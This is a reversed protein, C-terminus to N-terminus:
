HAFVDQAGTSVFTAPTPPATVAVCINNQKACQMRDTGALSLDPVQLLGEGNQPFLQARKVSSLPDVLQEEDFSVFQANPCAGFAAPLEPRPLHRQGKDNVQM